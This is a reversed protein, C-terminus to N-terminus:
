EGVTPPRSGGTVPAALWDWAREYLALNEEDDLWMETSLAQPSIHCHEM